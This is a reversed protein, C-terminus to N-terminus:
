LKDQQIQERLCALVEATEPRIGHWVHFADAAQEILMGLGDMVQAAQHQEGWVMFATPQAAYMMDYCVGQEALCGGPLPPVQGRLSAATGNIILDFEGKIQEFGGGAITGSDAFDKALAAAKEATRNAIFLGSPQEALVPELVGRVAGGAGLLLIRQDKLALQANVSLDRVLGRGDTNDGYVTGDARFVLTNVAGARQAFISREDALEWAQEKFPVTVNCGVGGAARFQAITGSFDDLPAELLEYSLDIGTQQAFWRHILPSQSHRVPNGIVAFVKESVPFSVSM